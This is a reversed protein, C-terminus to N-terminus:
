GSLKLWEWWIYQVSCSFFINIMAVRLFPIKCRKLLNAAGQYLFVFAKSSVTLVTRIPWSGMHMAQLRCSGYYALAVANKCVLRNKSLKERLSPRDVRARKPLSLVESSCTSMIVINTRAQSQLQNSLNRYPDSNSIFEFDLFLNTQSFARVPIHPLQLSRTIPEQSFRVSWIYWAEFASM